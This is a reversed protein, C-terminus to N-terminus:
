SYYCAHMIRYTYEGLNMGALNIHILLVNTQILTIIHKVFNECNEKLKSSHDGRTLVNYSLNLNEVSPFECLLQAVKELQPTSFSCDSLDIQQLAEFNPFAEIFHHFVQYHGLNVGSLRVKRLFVNKALKGM